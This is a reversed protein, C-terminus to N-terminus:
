KAIGFSLANMLNCRAAPYRQFSRYFFKKTPYALRLSREFDDSKSWQVNLLNRNAEPLGYSFGNYFRSGGNIRSRKHVM